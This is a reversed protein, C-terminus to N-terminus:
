RRASLEEVQALVASANMTGKYVYLAATTEEPLVEKKVRLKSSVAFLVRSKAQKEAWEVRAFVAERSWFGLVELYVPLRGPAEFKLDPVCLGAGPVDLLEEALAVKFVSEKKELSQFLAVVESRLGLTGSEDADKESQLKTEFLLAKREKGWRLDARLDASKCELLAPVLLALSLGYKTVSEFLSFPGEIEIEYKGEGKDKLRYLLRRFKLKRFLARAADPSGCEVTVNLKVARLLIGQVQAIEYSELLREPTLRPASTLTAAGKLDSFLGEEVADTTIEHLAAVHDLVEERSFTGESPLAKRVESARQFVDLRLTSADIEVPSGFECADLVLKKLGAWLKEHKSARPISALIEAVEELSLGVSTEALQLLEECMRLAEARDAGTLSLLQLKDGRRRVRVLDAGLM